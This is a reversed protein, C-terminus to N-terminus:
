QEIAEIKRPCLGSQSAPACMPRLISAAAVDFNNHLTAITSGCCVGLGSVANSKAMMSAFKRVRSLSRTVWAKRDGVPEIGHDKLINGVMQDSVEHGLNALAGEIRDYGWM